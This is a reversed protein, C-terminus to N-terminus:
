IKGLGAIRKLIAPRVQARIAFEVCGVALRMKATRGQRRPAALRPQKVDTRPAALLEVGEDVGLNIREVGRRTIRHQHVGVIRRSHMKLVAIPDLQNVLDAAEGTTHHQRWEGAPVNLDLDSSCVDSSWDCEKIEYATKQKFFFRSYVSCLSM